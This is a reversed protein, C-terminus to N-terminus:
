KKASGWLIRFYNKYSQSVSKNSILIAFPPKEDWIFIVIKNDYIFTDAPSSYEASVFRADGQYESLLASRRAKEGFIVRSKIRYRLKKKQYHSFYPGLVRRMGGEAGFVCYEKGYKLEELLNDLLSKIGKFGSYISAEQVPKQTKQRAMLDPMIKEIGAKDEDIQKRREELYNILRRTDSAEFYKRNARIIHSALGKAQLKELCEYVRSSHLGSNKIIGGTTSSGTELLALYVKIENGTLGIKKLTGFVLGMGVAMFLLSACMSIFKIIKRRFYSLLFIFIKGIYIM